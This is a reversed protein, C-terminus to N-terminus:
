LGKLANTSEDDYKKYTILDNHCLKGPNGPYPSCTSYEINHIIPGKNDGFFINILRSFIERYYHSIIEIKINESIKIEKM